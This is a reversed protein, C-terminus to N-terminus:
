TRQNVNMTPALQMSEGEAYLGTSLERRLDDATPRGCVGEQTVWRLCVHGRAIEADTWKKPLVPVAADYEALAARAAAWAIDRPSGAVYLPVGIDRDMDDGAILERLADAVKDM